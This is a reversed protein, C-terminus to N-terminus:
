VIPKGAKENKSLGVSFRLLELSDASTVQRDGDVDAAVLCLYKYMKIINEPMETPFGYLGVSIRLVELSDASTIQRDGDYDGYDIGDLLIEATSWYGESYSAYYIDKMVMKGNPASDIKEDKGNSFVVKIENCGNFSEPLDYQYYLMGIDTMKEGPYAANEIKKDGSEDCAYVYVEDWQKDYNDFTIRGIEYPNEKVERNAMIVTYEYTETVESGNSNAAKLTLTYETDYPVDKGLTIVDGDKFEKTVESIKKEKYTETLTYKANEAEVCHLAVKTEGSIKTGSPLDAYVKSIFPSDYVVAIGSEGVKGKITDKTVVFESGTIEDKYTGEKAFGGANVVEVEGSGESCVIVAGGDERTIVACNNSVAYCDQKGVMANHFHNVAAVQPLEFNESGKEGYLIEMKATKYPRSFYLSTADARAAAVAYARDIQNQTSTRSDGVEGDNSYTDHSEAWYVLKNAPVGRKTWNGDLDKVGYGSFMGRLWEGYQSDTVSMYQSYEAMIDDSKGDDTPGKLIEGYHYIGTDTVVKWFDDGESPVGIHKASDWRIGDVGVSKLEEIFGLVYQQVKPNSTNLDPCGEGLYSGNIVQDRKNYSNIPRYEHWCDDDKLGEPREDGYAYLHNAVVDMIVNIGYKEAEKCLEELDAKTNFDGEEWIKFDFPAYVSYWPTFATARNQVPAVQVSTFGAKAIEPLSAKIDTFKWSFCHLIVGDQINQALKYKDASIEEAKANIDATMALPATMAACLMLSIVKKLRDSRMTVSEKLLM